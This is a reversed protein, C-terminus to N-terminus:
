SQLIQKLKHADIRLEGEGSTLNMKRWKSLIRTVTERSVGILEAIQQHTLDFLLKQCGSQGTDDCISILLHAIRQEISFTNRIFISLNYAGVRWAYFELAFHVLEKKGYIADLFDSYKLVYIDSDVVSQTYTLSAGNPTVVSTVEGFISGHTLLRNINKAGDSNITYNYCLGRKLYYLYENVDQAQKVLGNKEVHQHVGKTVFLDELGDAPVDVWPLKNVFSKNLLSTM